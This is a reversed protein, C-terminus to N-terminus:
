FDDKPTAAELVAVEVFTVTERLVEVRVVSPLVTAAPAISTQRM